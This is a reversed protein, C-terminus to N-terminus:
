LVEHTRAARAIGGVMRTMGGALPVVGSLGRDRKVTTFGSPRTPPLTRVPSGCLQERLPGDEFLWAASGADFEHFVALLIFEAGGLRSSNNVFLVRPPASFGTAADPGARAPRVGDRALGVNM